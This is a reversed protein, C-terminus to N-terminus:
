GKVDCLVAIGDLNARLTGAGAESDVVSTTVKINLIDGSVLGAATVAFDKTYWTDTAAWGSAATTCLDAGVAGNGTQEYVEADITSGNDVAAATKVLSTKIRVTVDGAAVYEPPLVFQIYGVSVETENDTIEGQIDYVNAALNVNFSGATEAAALPVGTASMFDSVPIGYAALADEAMQARAVSVLQANKIEGAM